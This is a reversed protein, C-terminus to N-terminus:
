TIAIIRFNSFLSTKSHTLLNGANFGCHILKSGVDKLNKKRHYIITYKVNLLSQCYFYDYIVWSIAAKNICDALLGMLIYYNYVVYM